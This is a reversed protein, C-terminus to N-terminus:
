YDRKIFATQENRIYENIVNGLRTALLTALIKYDVNLISIPRYSEPYRVDRDKPPILVLRAQNWFPPITNYTLCYIFLNHLYSILLDQISKARNGFRYALHM